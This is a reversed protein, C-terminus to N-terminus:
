HTHIIQALGTQHADGNNFTKISEMALDNRVLIEKREFDVGYSKGNDLKAMTHVENVETTEKGFFKTHTTTTSKVEQLEIAGWDKFYLKEIGEGNTTTGMIKGETTTKYEVIGSKVEYRKLKTEQAVGFFTILIGFLITSVTKM